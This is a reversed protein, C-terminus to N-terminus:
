KHVRDIFDLKISKETVRYIVGDEDWDLEDESPDNEIEIMGHNRFGRTLHTDV